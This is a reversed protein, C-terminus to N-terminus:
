FYKSRCMDCNGSHGCEINGIWQDCWPISTDPDIQVCVYKIISKNLMSGGIKSRKVRAGWWILCNFRSTIESSEHQRTKWIKLDIISIIM